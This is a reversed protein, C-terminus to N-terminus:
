TRSRKTLYMMQDAHQILSDSCSGEHPFRAMGVSLCIHVNQFDIFTPASCAHHLVSQFQDLE